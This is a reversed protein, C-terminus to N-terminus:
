VPLERNSYQRIRAGVQPMIELFGEVFPRKVADMMPQRCRGFEGVLQDILGSVKTKGAYRARAHLDTASHRRRCNRFAGRRDEALDVGPDRGLCAEAVAGGSELCPEIGGRSPVGM